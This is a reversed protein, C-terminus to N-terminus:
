IVSIRKLIISNDIIEKGTSTGLRSIIYSIISEQYKKFFNSVSTVDGRLEQIQYAETVLLALSEILKELREDIDDNRYNTIFKDYKFENNLIAAPSAVLEEKTVDNNMLQYLMGFLSFIVQKANLLVIKTENNLRAADDLLADSAITYRDNLDILDVIFAKKEPSKEYGKRFLKSYIETNDFIAKKGSRSTGPQQYVFSLILQGLEDNRIKKYGSRVTIREGRKIELIVKNDFLWKALIKMEKSNSKLDRPQIPKQSNTAESIKEIFNGHGQYSIVKCPVYFLPAQNVDKGILTTTQGGNVISFNTLKITNGDFEFSECAITIGNNYFWFKDRENALSHKIGSDVNKNAVFKRINLDLLGKNIYKNYMQKISESSVNIFAGESDNTVYQLKNGPKDIKLKFTETVREIRAAQQIIYNSLDELEYVSVNNTSFSRDLSDIKQMLADKNLSAITFLNYEITENNPDFRDIANQLLERVKQNYRGASFRRFDNVTAEIKSFENIIDENSINPTFKCQCLHIRLEEEDFYIFDMGGDNSGDTVNELLQKCNAKPMFILNLCLLVFAKEDTITENLEGFMRQKIKVLESNIVEM